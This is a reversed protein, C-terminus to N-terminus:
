ASYLRVYAAQVRKLNDLKGPECHERSYTNFFHHNQLFAIQMKFWGEESDVIQQEQFERYLNGAIYDYESGGLYHLDADCLLESLMNQPRQPVKTALIMECISDIQEPTYDFEPLVQRVTACGAEEHDRYTQLFGCDHYLAATELLLRDENSLSFHEALLCAIKHVYLTHGLDHYSLNDPLFQELQSLIYHKAQKFDAM